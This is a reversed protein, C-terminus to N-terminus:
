HVCNEKNEPTLDGVCSEDSEDHVPEIQSDSSIETESDAKETSQVSEAEIASPEEPAITVEPTVTDDAQPFKALLFERYLAVEDSSIIGDLEKVSSVSFIRLVESSSM